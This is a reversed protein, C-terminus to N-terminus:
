MHYNTLPYTFLILPVYRISLPPLNLNLNLIFKRNTTSIFYICVYYPTRHIYCRYIFTNCLPCLRINRSCKLNLILPPDKHDHVYPSVSEYVNCVTNLIMCWFSSLFSHPTEFKLLFLRTAWLIYQSFPNTLSIFPIWSLSGVMLHFTNQNLM